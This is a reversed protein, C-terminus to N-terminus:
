INFTPLSSSKLPFNTLDLGYLVLRILNGHSDFKVEQPPAELTQLLIDLIARDPQQSEM